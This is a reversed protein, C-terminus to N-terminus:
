SRRDKQVIADVAEADVNVLDVLGRKRMAEGLNTAAEGPTHGLASLGLEAVTAEWAIGVEPERQVTIPFPKCEVHGIVSQESHTM